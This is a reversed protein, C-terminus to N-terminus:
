LINELSSVEMMSWSSKLDEATFSSGACVILVAAVIVSLSFVILGFLEFKYSGGFLGIM